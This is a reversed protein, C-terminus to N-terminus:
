SNGLPRTNGTFWVSRLRLREHWEPWSDKWKSVKGAGDYALIEVGSDNVGTIYLMGGDQMWIEQPKPIHSRSERRRAQLMLYPGLVYRSLAYLAPAGILAAWVHWEAM